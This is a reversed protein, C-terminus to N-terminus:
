VAMPIPTGSSKPQPLPFIKEFEDRSITEVELLRAAVADLFDRYDVLIKRAKEHSENVIRRM